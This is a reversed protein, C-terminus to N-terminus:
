RFFPNVFNFKNVMLFIVLYINHRLILKPKSAPQSLPNSSNFVLLVRAVAMLGNNESLVAMTFVAGGPV